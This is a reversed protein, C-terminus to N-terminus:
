LESKVSIQYANKGGDLTLSNLTLSKIIEKNRVMDTLNNIFEGIAFLSKSQGNIIVTKNDLEFSDVSLNGPIKILLGNMTKAFDKRTALIKEINEVRDNAVFLNAQRIQYQSLKALVDERRKEISGLNIAQIMIFISLSILGVGVVMAVAILNLIRIRKRRKLSGEDTRILLNINNSM